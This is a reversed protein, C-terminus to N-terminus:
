GRRRRVLGLAGLGALLLPLGAPLPVSAPQAGAGGSSVLSSNAALLQQLIQDALLANVAATAHIPDYFLYDNPNACVGAATVCTQTVNTLGFAAPDAIIGNVFSFTDFQIITDDPGGALALGSSLLANFGASIDSVISAIEPTGALAPSKGIDPLLFVLIDDIEDTQAIAHTVKVITRAADRLRDEATDIAAAVRFPQELLPAALAAEVDDLFSGLIDIVDNGGFFLSVLPKDGLVPADPGGATVDAAFSKVQDVMDPWGGDDVAQAGGIAYNRSTVAGTVPDPAGSGFADDLIDAWIPGNSFQVGGNDPNVYYVPPASSPDRNGIDSLSDGFVYFSTYIDSLSAASVPLGAMSVALGTALVRLM